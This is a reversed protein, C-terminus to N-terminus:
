RMTQAMSFIPYLLGVAIFGIMGAMMMLLLPEILRVAADVQRNTRREVADAVKLLVKEMQNSEEGVAIMETIEDPFLGSSRLKEALPEGARVDETAQEIAEALLPHGAADKAIELAQLITIGNALMTGLVRCFRTIAVMRVAKGAVPIKLQWTAWMKRGQEGRLLAWAGTGVMALVGLIPMAQGRLADSIAFLVRSPLPLPVGALFEKFQPVLFILMGTVATIAVSALVIPYIMAGRFSSALIVLLSNATTEANTM